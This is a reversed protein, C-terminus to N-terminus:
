AAKMESYINLFCFHYKVIEVVAVNGSPGLKTGRLMLLTIPDHTSVAQAEALIAPGNLPFGGLRNSILSV